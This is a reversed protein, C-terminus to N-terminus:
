CGARANLWVECMGLDCVLGSRSATRPGVYTFVGLGYDTKETCFLHFILMIEIARCEGQLQRRRRINSGIKQELMATIANDVALFRGAVDGGSLNLGTDVSVASVGLTGVSLAITSLAWTPSTCSRGAKSM